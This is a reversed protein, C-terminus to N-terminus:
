KMVYYVPVISVQNNEVEKEVGRREKASEATQVKVLYPVNDIHFNLYGSIANQRFM